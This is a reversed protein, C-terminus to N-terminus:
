NIRSSTWSDIVRQCESIAENYGSEYVDPLTKPLDPYKAVIEAYDIDTKKRKEMEAKLSTLAQTFLDTLKDVTPEYPAIITRYKEQGKETIVTTKGAPLKHTRNAFVRRVKKELEQLTLQTESKTIPSEETVGSSDKGTSQHM